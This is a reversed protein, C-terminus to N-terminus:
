SNNPRQLHLGIREHVREYRVWLLPFALPLPSPSAPNPTTMLQILMKLRSPIVAFAAVGGDMSLSSIITQRLPVM